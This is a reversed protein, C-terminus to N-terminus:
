MAIFERDSMERFRVSIGAAHGDEGVLNRRLLPDGMARARLAALEAPQEPVEDILRGVDVM